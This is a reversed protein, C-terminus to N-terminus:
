NKVEAVKLKKSVARIHLYTDFLLIKINGNRVIGLQLDNLHHIIEEIAEIKWFEALRGAAAGQINDLKSKHGPITKLVFVERMFFIAYQVFYKQQEKNLKAIEDSILSIEYAEDTIVKKIWDLWLANFPSNSESLINLGAAVSGDSMIAAANIKEQDAGSWKQLNYGVDGDSLYNLKLSQCRSRITGLIREIDDLLIIIFTEDPPEEILKLLRNGEKGLYEGGWIIWVKQKSEFSKLGLIKVMQNCAEKNINGQKNEGGISKLWDHYTAFANEHLLSRWQTMMQSPLVNVGITPFTFHIDPHILKHSKICAACVGCSDDEKKDQCLLYSAFARAIILKGIGSPGHFIQAHPTSGSNVMQRILRKQEVHGSIDNFYM